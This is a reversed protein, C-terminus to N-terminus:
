RRNRYDRYLLVLTVVLAAVIGIELVTDWVTSGTSLGM